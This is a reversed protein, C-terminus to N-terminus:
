PIEGLILAQGISLDLAAPVGLDKHTIALGHNGSVILDVLVRGLLDDLM